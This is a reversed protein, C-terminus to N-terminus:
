ESPPKIPIFTGDLTIAAHSFVLSVDELSGLLNLMPTLMDTHSHLGVVRKTTEDWDFRVSGRMVIHQDVVKAVIEKRRKSLTKNDDALSRFLYQLTHHTLTVRTSTTAVLAGRTLQKLGQLQIHCDPFAQTFIKWSRVLDQLGSANGTDIDPAMSASLFKLFREQAAELGSLGYQLVRFYEVAVFWASEKPLRERLTFRQLQLQEIENRLKPISDVLDQMKKKKKRIHRQQILNRRDRHAKMIAHLKGMTDKDAIARIEQMTLPRQM